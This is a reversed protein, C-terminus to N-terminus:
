LGRKNSIFLKIINLPLLLKQFIYVGKRKTIKILVLPDKILGSVLSELALKYQKEKLYVKFIQFDVIALKRKIEKNYKKNTYNNIGEYLIYQKEKSDSPHLFASKTIGGDHHTYVGMVKDSYFCKGRSSLILEIAIDGSRVKSFFDPLPQPMCSNRFFLSLTPIFHHKLIDEFTNVEKTNAYYPSYTSTYKTDDVIDVAHTCMSFDSNKDLFDKQVQLKNVNTWYDDGECNAIFEGECSGLITIWNKVAGVNQEWLIPKVINPYKKHYELIILRTGDTSCDDGAIIEFPFNTKQSLFGDLANAIYKEHNYITCSISVIPTLNSGKWNTMIDKETINLM